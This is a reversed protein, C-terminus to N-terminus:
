EKNQETYRIVKLYEDLKCYWEHFSYGDNVKFDTFFKDGLNKNDLSEFFKYIPSEEPKKCNLGALLKLNKTKDVPIPDFNKADPSAKEKYKEPELFYWLDYLKQRFHGNKNKGSKYLSKLDKYMDALYGRKDKAAELAQMDIDLPLFIRLINQLTDSWPWPIGGISKGNCYDLLYEFRKKFFPVREYKIAEAIPKFLKDWREREEGTSTTTYDFFKCQLDDPLRGETDHGAFAISNKLIPIEWNEIKKIKIIVNYIVSNVNGDNTYKGGNLIIMVNDKSYKEVITCNTNIYLIEKDNEKCWYSWEEEDEIKTIVFVKKYMGNEMIKDIKSFLPYSM